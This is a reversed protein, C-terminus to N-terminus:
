SRTVKVLEQRETGGRVDKELVSGVGRLYFKHEVVGPELPSFDKTVVLHDFTGYPVTAHGTRRLVTGRDEAVGPAHEQAYTDGVQPDAEMVIGARAGNRGARWSGATSVVRGNEVTKTAEGFYWVNGRGDQAYWDRTDEVLQGHSYARDRVVRVRVGDVLKTRHTVVLVDRGPQDGGVIRYVMRTGPVLPLFPNDIRTSFHRGSTAPAAAAPVGAAIVAGAATVAALAVIRTSRTGRM